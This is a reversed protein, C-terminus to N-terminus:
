MEEMKLESSFFTWPCRILPEEDKVYIRYTGIPVVISDWRGTTSNYQEMGTIVEDCDDLVDMIGKKDIFFM